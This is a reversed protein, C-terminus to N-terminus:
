LDIIIPLIMPPRRTRKRLFRRLTDQVRARLADRDAPDDAHPDRLVRKVLAICEQELGESNGFWTFGRSVMKPGSVLEDSGLRLVMVPILLGEGSLHRRDRLIGKKVTAASADLLVRGAAVKGTISATSPTLEIVDGDEALIIQQASLRMERALRAHAALQRYEGHVPVFFQPRVLGIMMKLEEQSAHGSVHCPPDSNQVVRAGRRTLHNVLRGIARENGPIPRASLIVLDGSELHIDKHDDMAIRALASRPEGQSGGAVVAVRHPPLHAVERPQITTGPPIKLLGLDEAVQTARLVSRGALCILRGHSVAVDVVQQIRHINSSFTAVVVRGRTAEIHMELSGRVCRESPTYGPREANTSDSLLLLVGEDGYSSFRPTDPPKGDVPTQDLKFDATHLVTGVPTRIAVALSDPISHTVRLFEVEFPGIKEIQRPSVHRLDVGKRLGRERLKEGVLGLTMRSGFVPTNVRELLHPVAGIHDEHGHTLVLGCVQDAREFLYSLDPVVSEIGGLGTEPFMVGCDVVLIAGDYELAMTNLGFEGLGGLPIIRLPAQPHESM